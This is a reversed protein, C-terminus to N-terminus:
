EFSSPEKDLVFAVPKIAVLKGDEDLELEYEIDGDLELIIDGFINDRGARARSVFGLNYSVKGVKFKIPLGHFAKETVEKQLTVSVKKGDIKKDKYDLLKVNFFELM